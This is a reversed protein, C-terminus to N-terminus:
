RREFVYVTVHFVGPFTRTELHRFQPAIARLFSSLPPFVTSMLRGFGGTGLVPGLARPVDIQRGSLLEGLDATGPVVVFLKGGAPTQDAQRALVRTPTAPLFAYRPASLVAQLSPAGIRLLHRDPQGAYALAADMAALPGPGPAPVIAVTSSPSGGHVVLEAAAAYDPREASPTLMRAAGIAFGGLVLAIAVYQMPRRVSTLLAGATLALGPWSASLNRPDWLSERLVSYLVLGVPAAMALAFPLLVFSRRTVPAGIRGINTMGGVLAVTMGVAVIALALTGPVSALTAWPQGVAWVALDHGVTHLNFPELVAFAHAGFSRSDRIVAPIHPAFGIAACLNALVVTRRARPQSVFAWIAQAALVFLATYQTYMAACSCIAYVVWWRWGEGDLARVLALTSAISLFVLLAYPRAQTSYFILFPSLAVLAAASLGARRGFTRVGVLFTVPIAGVGALLSTARLLEPSSGFREAAWSLLFYLPPNLEIAHGYQPQLIQGLSHGTVIYYTSAEDEFLSNGM